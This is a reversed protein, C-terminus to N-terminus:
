KMGICTELVHAGDDPPCFQMVCGRTDDCRYTATEHVLHSSVLTQAIYNQGGSSSCMHEFCTCANFLRVKFCINQADIQNIVSIFINLHLTLLVDWFM